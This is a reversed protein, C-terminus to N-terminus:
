GNQAGRADTDSRFLVSRLTNLLVNVDSCLSFQRIAGLNIRMKEPLIYRWYVEDTSLESHAVYISDEDRFAVSAASTLGAPMLLTAYMELTYQAVYRPVEPRTGVFTMEGRFINFLQPIEDLRRDRLKKGIPTIRTDNKATVQPGLAQANKVMTRFKFIHFVRGYSTVREQKFLVPRGDHLLILTAVVAMIPLLFLILAGAAVVDFIRKVCLQPAKSSLYAHYPRVVDTRMAAPLTDWKRVIM